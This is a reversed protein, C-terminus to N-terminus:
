YYGTLRRNVRLAPAIQPEGFFDILICDLRISISPTHLAHSLSDIPSDGRRHTTPVVSSNFLSPSPLDRGRSWSSRSPADPGRHAWPLRRPHHPAHDSVRRSISWRDPRPPATHIDNEKKKKKKQTSLRMLLPSSPTMLLVKTLTMASPSPSSCFGKWVGM